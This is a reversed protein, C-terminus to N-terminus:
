EKPLVVEEDVKEKLGKGEKDRSKSVHAGKNWAGLESEFVIHSSLNKKGESNAQMIQNNKTREVAYFCPAEM